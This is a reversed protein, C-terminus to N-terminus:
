SRYDANINIYEKTLDCTWVTSNEKGIGMDIDIVINKDKMKNAVLKEKYNAVLSGKKTIKIKNIAISIKDQIFPVDSNGIAMIIRGWNPDEGAIATKVLSSNAISLGINRASKQSKVSNINITIFKSAGEGDCVIQQALSQLVKDLADKFPKLRKDKIQKISDKFFVSPTSFLLCTDSTSTDGDVTISNFSKDVAEKL